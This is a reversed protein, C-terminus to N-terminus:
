RSGGLRRVDELLLDSSGTFASEATNIMEDYLHRFARSDRLMSAQDLVYSPDFSNVNHVFQTLGLDQFAGFGKREYSLHIVYHGAYLAMLAAHLRVAVVVRRPKGSLLEDRSIIRLPSLSTMAETDDNGAGTSQVYGDFDKLLSALQITSETLRGHVKRVSLVPRDSVEGTERPRWERLLAMDQFRVANGLKMENLSKDDRLYVADLRRLLARTPLKLGYRVPGVSQPLYLAPTKSFAAAMLQPGHALATKLAESPTGARLYGGGVGLILDYSSVSRLLKLADKGLGRASIGADLVEIDAGLRFTDPHQAALTVKANPYAARAVDIAQEVLLGDGLNSASYGHLILIKM